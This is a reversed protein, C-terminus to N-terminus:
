KTNYESLRIKTGSFYLLNHVGCSSGGKVGGMISTLNSEWLIYTVLFNLRGYLPSKSPAKSPAPDKEEKEKGEEGGERRPPCICHIQRLIGSVQIKVVRINFNGARAPRVGPKVYGM